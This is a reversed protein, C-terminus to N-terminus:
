CPSPQLSLSAQVDEGRIVVSDYDDDPFASVILSALKTIPRQLHSTKIIIDKPNVPRFKTYAPRVATKVLVKATRVLKDSGPSVSTVRGMKWTSQLPTEELVMVLDGKKVNPKQQHWKQCRQLSQLYQKQWLNWFEQVMAKCLEWRNHLTLNPEKPCEPYVGMPRGTLFHSPTLPMEGAPSHSDQSLYPRSNLCAEAQCFVTSLEEFSLMTKGVVRKLCHKAGKVAAEWIGGFHPARDPIFHWDIRQALLAEKVQIQTTPLSLFDFLDCLQNRAGIFNSGNDSYIHQPVNRRSIFRKLTAIFAITTKASVVEFHVAKTALCVFVALYGKIGIPRRPHGTKLMFPGAYDLGTHLFCLSIEVRPPPLQGMKQQHCKPAMRRCLLCGQCIERALRKAGPVYAQQGVQALLLTPGCHSLTIHKHQFLLKTIHQKPSLIVPHKQLSSLSSRELRGGVLLLGKDSMIPHVLRLPSNKKMPLPEAAALRSLEEPYSKAQSQRYLIVEAAEVEAASLVTEKNLNDGQISAKLNRCFRFLYAVVHVLKQYSHFQSQWWTDTVTQLSYVKMPKAELRRHQEFEEIGPQPPIQLPEQLLWPPGGWWLHHNKLESASIGRSACDAPNDETPVHLWAKPPLSRAAAAVRNAVFTKHQVSTERLWAIAVTSDSWGWLEVNEMNLSHQTSALLEATMVAACLELRPISVTKLPSVKTKAVVLRSTIRGDSYTARIYVVAAYASESADAFGHLQLTVVTGETFYCRPLVVSKLLPLQRRWEKHQEAAKGELPDDWGFKDKERWLSQFLIKMRIIFPALWGLVDFSKATDSIVGCKTSIFEDPLQM